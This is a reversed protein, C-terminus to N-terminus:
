GIGICELCITVAKRFLSLHGGGKIGFYILISVMLTAVFIFLIRSTSFSLPKM